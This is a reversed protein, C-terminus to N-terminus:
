VSLIFQPVLTTIVAIVVNKDQWWSGAPGKLYM